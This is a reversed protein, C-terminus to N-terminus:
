LYIIINDPKKYGGSQSRFIIRNIKVKVIDRNLLENLDAIHMCYYFIAFTRNYFLINCWKVLLYNINKLPVTNM